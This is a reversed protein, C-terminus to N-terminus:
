PKWGQERLLGAIDPAVWNEPKRLKGHIDVSGGLKAMNSAHIANAIPKGHIGFAARTGEVVYDLDGLADALEVMDVRIEHGGLAPWAVSGMHAAMEPSCAEVLELFEETVLRLRLRVIDDSPVAPSTKVDQGFALMFARVQRSLQAEVMATMEAQLETVQDM